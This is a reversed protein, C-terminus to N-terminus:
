QETVRGINVKGSRLTLTLNGKLLASLEQGVMNYRWGHLLRCEPYDFLLIELDKRTALIAPNLLNENARIRVVAALIDLTAEQQQSKKAPRKSEDIKIPESKIAAAILSCLEKGYRKSIREPMSRLNYLQKMETPQLRALDLLVEDRILWNKPRNEAQATNERWEALAQLVTLQKGSLKNKGKVKLWANESSVRYLDINTLTSFDSQLWSLRGLENLKQNIIQYIQCLYIVDDAAYQLQEESLPRLSWDTRTHAKSLNVKLLSSVLMSYGTHEQFGLLPAALQTDFVPQPLQGGLHYFIEMDQRCSHFIKIIAPNYLIKDLCGLSPLSIVDILAVLGPTAIQLLCFKPFYTRERLFETDIAIWPQDIIDQCVKELAEETDIYQITQM